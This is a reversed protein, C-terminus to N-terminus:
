IRVRCVISLWAELFAKVARCDPLFGRASTCAGPDGVKIPIGFPQIIRFADEDTEDDGIFVSFTGEPQEELLALLADGKHWGTSRVEVGGNFRRCDLAYSAELSAWEEFVRDELDGAIGAQMGRTHFAVSAIKTELKHGLGRRIALQRAKELGLVQDPSPEKIIIGGAPQKLEFGHSGVFTIRIDGLLTLLESVPRGSIIALTTNSSRELSRLINDIGPLPYARMPKIHFPALTGDYDLALFRRDAAGLQTWFDPINIVSIAEERDTMM